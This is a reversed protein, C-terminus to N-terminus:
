TARRAPLRKELFANILERAIPEGASAALAEREFDMQAEISHAASSRVLRRARGMASTAGAALSSALAAAEEDLKDDDVVRTAIGWAVAEDADLIRNTLVLELARRLGVLRPLIWTTSGDPSLGITTFASVFRATTGALVIDAACALGLGAGAAAGRVASVVPADLADLRAIACHVHGAVDRVYSPLDDSGSFSRLDGGACFTPGAGRLLVAGVDANKVIRQTADDLDSALELNITNHADPRNLTLHAVRDRVELTVTM